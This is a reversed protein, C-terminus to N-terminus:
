ACKPWWRRLCPGTTHSTAPWAHSLQVAPQQHTADDLTHAKPRKNKIQSFVLVQHAHHAIGAGPDQNFHLPRGLRHFIKGATKFFFSRSKRTNNRHLFFIQWRQSGEKTEANFFGAISWAGVGQNGGVCGSAGVTERIDTVGAVPSETVGEGIAGVTTRAPGDDVANGVVTREGGHSREGHTIRALTLIFVRTVSAKMGLGVGARLAPRLHPKFHTAVTNFGIIDQGLSTPKQLRPLDQRDLTQASKMQRHIGAIFIRNTQQSLPLVPLGFRQRHHDSVKILSTLKNMEVLRFGIQEASGFSGNDQQLFNGGAPFILQGSRHGTTVAPQAYHQGVRWQMMQKEVLRFYDGQDHGAAVVAVFGYAKAICFGAGPQAGNGIRQQQM